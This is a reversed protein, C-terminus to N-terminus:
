APIGANWGMALDLAAHILALHSIEVFGYERSDVFLNIDGLRRLPNDPTFGSLTLVNAGVVRAAAVSNLINASRGSSSIAVLLDGKRGHFEIQKAFAHEYGYDNALCTLALPDNFAMAPMGGNKSFDIAAHSAIGASGGNGVFMLKNGSDQTKRALEAITDIATELPMGVGVRNTAACRSIADALTAFYNAARHKSPPPSVNM